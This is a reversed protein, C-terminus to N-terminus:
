VFPVVESGSTFVKVVHPHEVGGLARIERNFRAETVPDGVHLLCKLAVLRGLSPQWARYIVGMGGRGIRSLLEFEGLTRGAAYEGGEAGSPEEARSEAAWAEVARSDVSRHLVRSLLEELETGLRENQVIGGPYYCLYEARRQGRRANLFAVGCSEPDYLLLPHLLRWSPQLPHSSDDGAIELYLCGPRPLRATENSSLELPALKKPSEGVLDYREVLWTGSGLRRVDSIFQLRRGALVDVHELIEAVGGVLARGTRDYFDGSRQGPAGHGFEQNRYRVLLDFLEALRVVTRLRPASQELIGRLVGDLGAAHPLDNRGRGLVWNRVQDFNGIRADGLAAVLGRVLEWWHGVTPRALNKLREALQPDPNQLAAFEVVSVAGLLKLAAEWLFYAANHRELPTRANHVRRYLQALPLPLRQLLQENCHLHTDM